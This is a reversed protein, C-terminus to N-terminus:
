EVSSAKLSIWIHKSSFTSVSYRSHGQWGNRWEQACRVRFAAKPCVWRAKQKIKEKESYFRPHWLSLNGKTKSEKIFSRSITQVIFTILILERSSQNNEEEDESIKSIKKKQNNTAEIKYQDKRTPSNLSMISRENSKSGGGAPKFYDNEFNKINDRVSSVDANKIDWSMNESELNGSIQSGFESNIWVPRIKRYATAPSSMIIVGKNVTRMSNTKIKPTKVIFNSAKIANFPLSFEIHIMGESKKLETFSGGLFMVLKSIVHIPLGVNKDIKFQNFFMNNKEGFLLKLDEEKLEFKPKFSLRFYVLYGVTDKMKFEANINVDIAETSKLSFDVIATIIQRFKLLDGEVEEPLCPDIVVNVNWKKTKSLLLDVSYLFFDKISFSEIEPRLDGCDIEFINKIFLFDSYLKNWSFLLNKVIKTSVEQPSYEDNEEEEQRSLEKEIIGLVEQFQSNIENAQSALMKQKINHEMVNEMTVVVAKNGKWQIPHIQCDFLEISDLIM